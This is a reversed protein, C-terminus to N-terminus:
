WWGCGHNGSPKGRKQALPKLAADVLAILKAERLMSSGPTSRLDALRQDDPESVSENYILSISEAGSAQTTAVQDAMEASWHNFGYVEFAQAGM